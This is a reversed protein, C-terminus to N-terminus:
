ALQPERNFLWFSLWSLLLAALWGVLALNLLQRERAEVERLSRGALVYGNNYHKVVIAQRVDKQPQWTLRNEGKDKAFDFVGTPPTPTRGDLQGSAVVAKLENSYIILYPALSKKLDVTQDISILSDIAQGNELAQAADEALQTQPDDAAQRIIQQSLTYAFLAFITSLIAM